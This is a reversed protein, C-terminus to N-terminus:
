TKKYKSIFVFIWILTAMLSILEPIAIGFRHDVLWVMLFSFWTSYITLSTLITFYGVHQCEKLVRKGLMLQALTLTSFFAITAMPHIPMPFDKRFVGILILSVSSILLLFRSWFGIRAETLITMTFIGLVIGSIIVGWNFFPSFVGFDSLSNFLWNFGHYYSLVIGIIPFVLGLLLTKEIKNKLNESM